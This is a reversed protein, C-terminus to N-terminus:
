MRSPIVNSPQTGPDTPCKNNSGLPQKLSFALSLSHQFSPNVDFTWGSIPLIFATGVLPNVGASLDAVITFQTKLTIKSLCAQSNMNKEPDAFVNTFFKDLWTALDLHTLLGKARPPCDVYKLGIIPEGPKTIQNRKSDLTPIGTASDKVITSKAPLTEYTQPVSIDIQSSVASKLTGKAQLSSVKNSTSILNALSTLGLKNLDIGLYQVSGSEDVELTLSLTASKSRDFYSQNKPVSLFDQLECQVQTAVQNVPVDHIWADIGLIGEFSPFFSGCGALLPVVFLVTTVRSHIFSFRAL